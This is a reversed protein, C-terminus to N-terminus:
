FRNLYENSAIFAKVMEAQIYNGNFQNL